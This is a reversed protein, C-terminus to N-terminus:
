SGAPGGLDGVDFGDESGFSPGITRVGVEEGSTSYTHGESVANICPMVIFQERQSETM